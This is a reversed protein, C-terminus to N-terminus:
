RGASRQRHQVVAAVAMADRRTMMPLDRGRALLSRVRAPTLARRKRLIIFGGSYGIDLRDGANIRALKRITKPIM